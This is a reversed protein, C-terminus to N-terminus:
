LLVGDGRKFFRHDLMRRVSLYPFAAILLRNVPLVLIRWHFSQTLRNKQAASREAAQWACEIVPHHQEEAVRRHSAHPVNLNVLDRKVRALTLFKVGGAEVAIDSALLASRISVRPAIWPEPRNVRWVSLVGKPSIDSNGVM